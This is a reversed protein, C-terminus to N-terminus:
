GGILVVMGHARRSRKIAPSPIVGFDEDGDFESDTVEANPANKGTAKVPSIYSSDPLAPSSEVSKEVPM